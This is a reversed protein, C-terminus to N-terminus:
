SVALSEISRPTTIPDAHRHVLSWGGDHRQYLTTVRLSAEVPEGGAAPHVRAHEVEVLCVMDDSAYTALREVGLVEGGRYKSAANALNAAVAARGVGFPGFPNGLSVAEDPAFLGRYVSPDGHIIATLARHAEELAADLTEFPAPM